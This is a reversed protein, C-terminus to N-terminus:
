MYHELEEEELPEEKLSHRSGWDSPNDKGPRYETEYDYGIIKIRMREIRAPAKKQPNNLLPVLPEHDTVSKVSGRFLYHYYKETGWTAALWEREIPAHKREADTCARSAYSVVRFSKVSPDEQALIASLGEQAGDVVLETKREPTFYAM